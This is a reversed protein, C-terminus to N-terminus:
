LRKPNTAGTALPTDQSLLYAEVQAAFGTGIAEDRCTTLNDASEVVIPLDLSAGRCFMLLAIDHLGSHIATAFPSFYLGPDLPESPQCLHDYRFLTNPNAGMDLLWKVTEFSESRVAADLLSWGQEQRKWNAASASTVLEALAAVDGRRAAALASEVKKTKTGPLEGNGARKKSHKAGKNQSSLRRKGLQTSTRSLLMNLLLHNNANM